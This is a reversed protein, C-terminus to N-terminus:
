VMIIAAFSDSQFSALARGPDLGRGNDLGRVVTGRLDPAGSTGDAVQWGTPCSSLNFARVEGSLGTSGFASSPISGAPAASFFAALTTDAPQGTSGTINAKVTGSAM